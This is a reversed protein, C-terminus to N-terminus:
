IHILSLCLGCAVNRVRVWDGAPLKPDPVTKYKVANLGTYLLPKCVKAAAKTRDRICM